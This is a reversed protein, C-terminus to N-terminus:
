RAGASGVDLAARAAAAVAEPERAYREGLAFAAAAGARDGAALLARGLAVHAGSLGPEVAIARRYHEIAAAREGLAERAEGLRLWGQPLNPRLALARELEPVAEAAAGRALLLRGLNYRPDVLDPDLALAERLHSLAEDGRGQGAAALALLNRLLPLEPVLALLPRLRAEAQAHRREVIQGEALRLSAEPLVAPAAGLLRELVPLAAARAGLRLAAVARYLEGETGRPAEAPRLFRVGVVVPDREPRPAVLEPGPPGRQILHDTM